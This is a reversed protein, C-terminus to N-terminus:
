LMMRSIIMITIKWYNFIDNHNWKDCYYYVLHLRTQNRQLTQFNRSNMIIPKLYEEATVHHFNKNRARLVSCFNTKHSSLSVKILRFKESQCLAFLELTPGYGIGHALYSFAFCWFNIMLREALFNIRIFFRRIRLSQGLISNLKRIRPIIHYLYICLLLCFLDWEIM